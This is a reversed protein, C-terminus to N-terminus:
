NRCLPCARISPQGKRRRSRNKVNATRGFAMPTMVLSLALAMMSMAQPRSIRTMELM